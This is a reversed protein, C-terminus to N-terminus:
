GLQSHASHPLQRTTWVAMRSTWLTHRRPRTRRCIQAAPLSMCLSRTLCLTCSGARHADTGCLLRTGKPNICDTAGFKTALEFKAANTDVALIRSAGVSKAAQVAALGVGGLGFVAVTSGKTVKATNTVAGRGTTIGCGLLCVKELPAKESVKAVSIELVVAYQSFTSCGM